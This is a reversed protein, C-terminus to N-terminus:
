TRRSATWTWTSRIPLRWTCCLNTRWNRSSTPLELMVGVRGGHHTYTEILGERAERSAKKAAIALGKQILYERAQEQDGKYEELANKCDLFSAGTAERLEKVMQATVTM